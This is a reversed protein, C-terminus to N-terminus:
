QLVDSEENILPTLFPGSHYSATEQEMSCLCTQKNPSSSWLTRTELFDTWEILQPFGPLSFPADRLVRPGRRLLWPCYVDASNLMNRQSVPASRFWVLSYIFCRLCALRQAGPALARAVFCGRETDPSPPSNTKWCCRQLKIEWWNLCFYLSWRVFFGM